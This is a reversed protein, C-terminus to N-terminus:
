VKEHRERNKEQREEMAYNNVNMQGAQSKERKFKKALM